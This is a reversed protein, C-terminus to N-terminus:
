ALIWINFDSRWDSPILPPARSLCNHQWHPARMFPMLARVLLSFFVFLEARKRCHSSVALFECDVIGFLSRVLVQVHQSRSRLNENELITLCVHRNTLSVSFFTLFELFLLNKTIFVRWCPLKLLIISDSVIALTNYSSTFHPSTVWDRRVRQLGMSQLRGPEEMWPIKRALISFCTAMEKELLDEQGLSQVWTEQMTPLRKVM